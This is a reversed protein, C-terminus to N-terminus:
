PVYHLAVSNALAPRIHSLLLFILLGLNVVTLALLLRQMTM